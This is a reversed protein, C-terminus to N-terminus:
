VDQAETDEMWDYALEDIEEWTGVENRLRNIESNLREIERDRKTIRKDWWEMCFVFAIGFGSVIGLAYAVINAAQHITM